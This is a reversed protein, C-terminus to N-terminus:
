KVSFNLGMNISARVNQAMSGAAKDYINTFGGQGDEEIFLKVKRTLPFKIGIGLALGVDVNNYSTIGPTTSALANGNLLFGVYPGFHMYWNRKQGFHWDAMIPVTLYNLRVNGYNFYAPPPSAINLYLVEPTPYYNPGYGKQDYILKTKIGWRDSFYMDAFVGINFGSIAQSSFTSSQGVTVYSENYGANFGFEINSNSQAHSIGFSFLAIILTTIFTKM